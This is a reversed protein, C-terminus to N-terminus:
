GSVDQFDQLDDLMKDIAADADTFDFNVDEDPITTPKSSVPLNALPNDFSLTEKIGASNPPPEENDMTNSETPLPPFEPPPAPFDKAPSSPTTAEM